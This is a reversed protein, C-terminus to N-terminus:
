KPIMERYTGFPVDHWTYMNEALVIINSTHTVGDETTSVQTEGNLFQWTGSKVQGMFDIRSFTGDEKFNIVDGTLDLLNNSKGKKYQLVTNTQNYNTFYENYVWTKSTLLQTKTKATDDDKSCSFLLVGLVLNYILFKLKM